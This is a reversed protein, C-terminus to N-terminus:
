YHEAVIKVMRHPLSVWHVVASGLAIAVALFAVVGLGNVSIPPLSLVHDITHHSM